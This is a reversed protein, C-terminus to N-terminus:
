ALCCTRRASSIEKEYEGANENKRKMETEEETQLSPDM